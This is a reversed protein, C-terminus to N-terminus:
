CIIITKEYRLQIFKLINLLFQSVLSRDTKWRICRHLSGLIFNIVNKFFLIESSKSRALVEPPGRNVDSKMQPTNWHLNRELQTGTSM